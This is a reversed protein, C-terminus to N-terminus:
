SRSFSIYLFLLLFLVAIVCRFLASSPFNDHSNGADCQGCASLCFQRVGAFVNCMSDTYVDMGRQGSEKKKERERSSVCLGDNSLWLINTYSLRFGFVLDFEIQAEITLM